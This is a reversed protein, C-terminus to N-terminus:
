GDTSTNKFYPDFNEIKNDPTSLWSIINDPTNILMDLYKRKARILENELKYQDPPLEKFEDSDQYTQLHQRSQEIAECIAQWFESQKGSSLIGQIDIPKKNKLISM